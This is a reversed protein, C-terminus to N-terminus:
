VWFVGDRRMLRPRKASVQVVAPQRRLALIETATAARDGFVVRLFFAIAGVFGM